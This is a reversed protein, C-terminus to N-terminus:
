VDNQPVFKERLLRRKEDNDAEKGQEFTPQEKSVNSLPSKNLKNLLAEQRSGGINLKMKNSAMDQKLLSYEGSLM